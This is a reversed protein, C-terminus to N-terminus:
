SIWWRGWKKSYHEETEEFEYGYEKLSLVEPQLESLTCDAYFEVVRGYLNKDRVIVNM